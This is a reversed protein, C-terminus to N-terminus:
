DNDTAGAGADASSSADSAVLIKDAHRCLKVWAASSVAIRGQDLKRKSAGTETLTLTILGTLKSFENDGNGFTIPIKQESALGFSMGTDRGRALVLGYLLLSSNVTSSVGNSVSALDVMSPGDVLLSVEKSTWHNANLEWGCPQQNADFTELCNLLDSVGDLGARQLEVCGAAVDEAVGRSVGCGVCAKLSTSYLQNFSLRM